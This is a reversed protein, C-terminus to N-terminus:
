ERASQRSGKEALLVGAGRDEVSETVDDRVVGWYASYSEHKGCRRFLQDATWRIVRVLGASMDAAPVQMSKAFAKCNM